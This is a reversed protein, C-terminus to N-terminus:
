VFKGASNKVSQPEFETFVGEFAHEYAWRKAEPSQLWNRVSELHQTFDRQKAAEFAKEISEVTADARVYLDDPVYFGDLPAGVYVPICGALLADFLKETVYETSNEIVLAYKFKSTVELKNPVVGRYDQPVISWHKQFGKPLSFGGLTRMAEKMITLIRTLKSDNWGAGFVVVNELNSICARRLSYLEGFTASYKNANVLVIKELREGEAIRIDAPLPYPTPHLKPVNGPRGMWFVQDFSKHLWKWRLHPLVVSAETIIAKRPLIRLSQKSVVNAFDRLRMNHLYIENPGGEIDVCEFNYIEGIRSWLELDGERGPQFIGSGLYIKRM